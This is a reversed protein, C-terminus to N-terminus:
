KRTIQFIRAPLEKRARGWIRERMAAAVAPDRMTEGISPGKPFYVRKSDGAKRYFPLGRRRSIFGPKFSKTGGGRLVNMRLGGGSARVGYSIGSVAKTKARIVFGQPTATITQDKAVREPTLNYHAVTAQGSDARARRQSAAAQRKLEAPTDRAAKEFRKQLAEIGKTSIKFM